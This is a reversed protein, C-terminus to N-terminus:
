FNNANNTLSISNLKKIFKFESSHKLLHSMKLNSEIDYLSVSLM